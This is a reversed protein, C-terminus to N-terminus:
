GLRAKLEAIIKRVRAEEANAEAIGTMANRHAAVADAAAHQAHRVKDEAADVQTQAKVMLENAKVQARDLLGVADKKAATLIKEGEANAEAVLADRQDQVSKADAIRKEAAAARAEADAAQDELNGVHFLKDSVDATGSLMRYFRQLEKAVEFKDDTSLAM